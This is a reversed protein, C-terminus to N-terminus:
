VTFVAAFSEGDQMSDQRRKTKKMLRLTVATEYYPLVYVAPLVLACLLLWPLMSLKFFAIKTMQGDTKELSAELSSFVGSNRKCLAYGWLSYRQAAVFTFAIGILALAATGAMFVTFMSETMEGVSIFYYATSASVAAPLLFLGAWALVFLFRVTSFALFQMTKFAGSGDTMVTRDTLRSLNLYLRKKGAAFLYLLISCLIVAATIVVASPNRDAYRRVWIEATGDSVFYLTAATASLSLVSLLGPLALSLFVRLTKGTIIQKARIKVMFDVGFFFVSPANVRDTNKDNLLIKILKKLIL